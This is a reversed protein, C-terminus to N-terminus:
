DRAGEDGELHFEEVGKATVKPVDADWPLADCPQRPLAATLPADSYM